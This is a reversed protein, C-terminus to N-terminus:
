VVGVAVCLVMTVASLSHIVQGLRDAQAIATPKACSRMFGPHANGGVLAVLSVWGSKEPPCPQTQHTQGQETAAVGVLVTVSMHEALQVTGTKTSSIFHSFDRNNFRKM